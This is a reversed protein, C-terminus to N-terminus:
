RRMGFDPVFVQCPRLAGRQTASALDWRVSIEPCELSLEPTSGTKVTDNAQSWNHCFAELCGELSFYWLEVYEFVKIKQIAYQSPRPAIINPPAQDKDFDGIQTEKQDAELQNRQDEENCPRHDQEDQQCEHQPHSEERDPEEQCDLWEQIHLWHDADWTDNLCQVAQANDQVENGIMALRISNFATAAFNPHVEQTLDNM